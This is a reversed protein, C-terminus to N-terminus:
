VEYQLVGHTLPCGCQQSHQRKKVFSPSALPHESYIKNVTVIIVFNPGAQGLFYTACRVEYQLVAARQSALLKNDRDPQYRDVGISAYEPVVSLRAAAAALNAVESDNPLKPTIFPLRMLADQQQLGNGTNGTIGTDTTQDADPAERIGSDRLLSDLSEDASEDLLEDSSDVLSDDWPASVSAGSTGLTGSTGSSTGERRRALKRQQNAVAARLKAEVLDELYFQQVPFTNGEIHLAGVSGALACTNYLLRTKLM